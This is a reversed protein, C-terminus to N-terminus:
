IYAKIASTQLSHRIHVNIFANPVRQFRAGDLYDHIRKSPARKYHTGFMFMNISANPVRQLRVGDSDDYIPKSPARKYRTGDSINTQSM